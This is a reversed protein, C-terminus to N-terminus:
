GAQRLGLSDLAAGVQGAPVVVMRTGAAESEGLASVEFSLQRLIKWQDPPLQARLAKAANVEDGAVIGLDVRLIAKM